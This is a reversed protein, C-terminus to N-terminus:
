QGSGMRYGGPPVPHRTVDRARKNDDHRRVIRAGTHDYGAWRYWAAMRALHEATETRNNWGNRMMDERMLGRRQVAYRIQEATINMGHDANILSAIEEVQKDTTTWYFELDDGAPTDQGIFSRPDNSRKMGPNLTIRMHADSM